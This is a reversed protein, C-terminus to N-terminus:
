PTSTTTMSLRKIGMEVLSTCIRQSSQVVMIVDKVQHIVQLILEESLKKFSIMCMSIMKIILGCVVSCIFQGRFKTQAIVEEEIDCM